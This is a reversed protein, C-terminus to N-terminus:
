SGHKKFFAQVTAWNKVSDLLAVGHEGAGRVYVLKHESAKTSAKNLTKADEGFSEDYEAAMCLVPATLKPVADLANMASYVTPASLAIVADPQPWMAPAATLVATGERSAGMLLLKKAGKGRLYGAAGVIESVEQGVSSVALVRYGARHLEDAKDKWHCATGDSQHALVIGAGTGGGSAGGPVCAGTGSGDASKFTLSAAQAEESTLCGFDDPVAAETSSWGGRGDAGTGGDGDGGGCGTLSVAALLVAASLIGPVRLVPPARLAATM